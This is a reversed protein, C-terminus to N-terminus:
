VADVGADIGHTNEGLILRQNEVLVDAVSLWPIQVTEVASDMYQRGILLGGARVPVLTSGVGDILVYRKDLAVVRLIHDNEGSM